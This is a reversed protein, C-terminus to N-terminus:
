GVSIVILAFLAILSGPFILFAKIWDKWSTPEADVRKILSEDIDQHNKRVFDRTYYPLVQEAMYRKFDEDIRDGSVSWDEASKQFLEYETRGTLLSLNYLSKKSASHDAQNEEKFKAYLFWFLYGVLLLACIGGILHIASAIGPDQAVSALTGGTPELSANRGHFFFYQLNFHRRLLVAASFILLAVICIYAFSKKNMNDNGNKFQTVFYREGM